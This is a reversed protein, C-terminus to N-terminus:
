WTEKWEQIRQLILHPNSAQHRGIIEAPPDWDVQFQAPDIPDLWEPRFEYLDWVVLTGTPFTDVLAMSNAFRNSLLWYWVKWVDGTWDGPLPTRSAIEKNYPLVDDFVIVTHSNAYREINLFDQLADEALHSGDIFALDLENPIGPSNAFFHNSTEPVIQANPIEYAVHPAPDVGIAPCTSLRLSEGHQVGIELYFRPVLLTHLAKLFEHRTM